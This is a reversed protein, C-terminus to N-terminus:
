LIRGDNKAIKILYPGAGIGYVTYEDIPIIKKLFNAAEIM